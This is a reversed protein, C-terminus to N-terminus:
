KEVEKCSPQANPLRARDTYQVADTCQTRAFYYVPNTRPTGASRLASEEYRRMCFFLFLFLFYNLINEWRKEVRNKRTKGEEPARQLAAVVLAVVTVSRQRTLSRM